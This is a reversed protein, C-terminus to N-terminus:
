SLLHSSLQPNLRPFTVALTPLFLCVFSGARVSVPLPSRSLSDSAPLRALGHDFDRHENTLHLSFHPLGERTTNIQGNDVGGFSFVPETRLWDSGGGVM